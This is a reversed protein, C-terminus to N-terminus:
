ECADRFGVLHSTEELGDFVFYLHCGSVAPHVLFFRVAHGRRIAAEDGFIVPLEGQFDEASLPELAVEVDNRSIGLQIVPVTTSLHQRVFREYKSTLYFSTAVRVVAPVVLLTVALTLFGMAKSV